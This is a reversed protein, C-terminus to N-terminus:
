KNIKKIEYNYSNIDSNNQFFLSVELHGKHLM